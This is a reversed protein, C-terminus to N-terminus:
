QGKLGGLGLRDIADAIFDRNEVIKKMYYINVSNLWKKKLHDCIYMLNM